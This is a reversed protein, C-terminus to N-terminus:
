MDWHDLGYQIESLVAPDIESQRAVNLMRLASQGGIQTLAWAAHERILPDSENLLVNGLTKVSEFSKQNGLVIAANRLIGSRRSRLIPSHAFQTKFENPSISFLAALNSIEPLDYPLFISSGEHNAFRQNWPCVQQCIDCGFVWNGIKSRYERPIRGRHEITLYSICKRADLSRDPLICNTPCAHICRECSGCFEDQIPDTANLPIDTFIEALLFTSGHAPHILCSNKGIWGLGAQQALSKELIPASDSFIKYSISAHLENMLSLMFNNLVEPFVDHYDRGWAYTAVKGSGANWARPDHNPFPYAAGICLISRCDPFLLSPQSRKRIADERGLYLMDAHFGHGLWRLYNDFGSPPNTTTIGVLILGQDHALGELVSHPTKM